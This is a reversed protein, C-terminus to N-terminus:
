TCSVLSQPLARWHPSPSPSRTASRLIPLWLCGPHNRARLFRNCNAPELPGSQSKGVIRRPRNAEYNCITGFFQVDSFCRIMFLVNGAKANSPSRETACASTV